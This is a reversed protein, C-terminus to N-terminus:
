WITIHPVTFVVIYREVTLASVFVKVWGRVVWYKKRGVM